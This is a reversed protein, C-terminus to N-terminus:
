TVEDANRPQLFISCTLLSFIFEYVEWKRGLDVSLIVVSSLVALFVHRSGPVPVSLARALKRVWGARPYLLPLVVLYLLMVLTLVSGFLTKALQEEGVVLNHLTTEDQANHELFFEGSEWGFVRQGWSIEEGAGFFFLLGYLATLLAAVTGRKSWLAGSNRFLVIASLFLFVSTGWEVPGDEIAFGTSFEGGLGTIQYTVTFILGAFALGLLLVDAHSLSSRDNLHLM